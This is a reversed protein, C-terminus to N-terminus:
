YEYEFSARNTKFAFVTKGKIRFRYSAKCSTSERITRVMSGNCPANLGFSSPEILTAELEMCGQKVTVSNDGLKKVTAGLYTAFRYEKGRYYIVGIIGTFEFGAMPINAVSLMLSGGHFLSQTWIYDRPFSRGSDGEIYGVANEFVYKKGNITLNGNVVHRMSKVFHRCEMFPVLAFPGMIDYKLPTIRGFSLRGKINIDKSNMNVYIGNIGFSNNGIKVCEKSKKYEDRPIDIVYAGDDTIVQLSCTKKGANEHRAAILAVTDEKSQCKLYWGYFNGNM